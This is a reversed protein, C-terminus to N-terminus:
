ISVQQIDYQLNLRLVKVSLVETNFDHILTLYNLSKGRLEM